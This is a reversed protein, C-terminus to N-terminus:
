LRKEDTVSDWLEEDDEDSELQANPDFVTKGDSNYLKFKWQVHIMAFPSVPEALIARIREEIQKQAIGYEGINLYM